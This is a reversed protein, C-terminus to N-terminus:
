RSEGGAYVPEKALTREKRPEAVVNLAIEICCGCHRCYVRTRGRFHQEGCLPLLKDCKPCFLQTRTCTRCYETAPRM